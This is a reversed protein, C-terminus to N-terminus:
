ATTDHDFGGKVRSRRKYIDKRYIPEATVSDVMKIGGACDTLDVTIDYGMLELTIAMIDLQGIVRVNALLDRRGATENALEALDQIEDMM